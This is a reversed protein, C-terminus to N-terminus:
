IFFRPVTSPIPIPPMCRSTYPPIFSLPLFQAHIDRPRQPNKVIPYAAPRLPLCMNIHDSPSKGYAAANRNRIVTPSVAKSRTEIVYAHTSVRTSHQLTSMSPHREPLQVLGPHSAWSLAADLQEIGRKKRPSTHPVLTELGLSLCSGSRPAPVLVLVHFSVLDDLQSMATVGFHSHSASGPVHILFPFTFCSRFRSAHCSIHPMLPFSFYFRSLPESLLIDIRSRSQRVRQVKRPIPSSTGM